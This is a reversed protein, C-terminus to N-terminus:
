VHKVKTGIKVMVTKPVPGNGRSLVEIDPFAMGLKKIYRDAKEDNDVLFAGSHQKSPDIRALEMLMKGMHMIRDKEPMQSLDQYKTM